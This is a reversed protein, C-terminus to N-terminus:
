TPRIYFFKRSDIDLLGFIIKYTLVLDQVLRRKELSTLALANLRSPYDLHSYGRLRKTFRRQVSEVKDIQYSYQPSWVPSAYELLPRVYVNFARTMIEPDRSVFCKRILYARSNAKAVIGDIHANFKLASDMVVGLDKVENVYNVCVGYLQCTPVCVSRNGYVIVSCKKISIPMQWKASWHGISDLAEQLNIIDANAKLMTYLKVDDAFLVCTVDEKIVKVLSNIYLLFLIPGICSGQIVGSNINVPVSLASGVRTRQQRDSLFSKIWELLNGAIGLSALRVLLKNHCVSDFAKQFDIYAVAVSHRNMIACTWDNLCYLLNTVTSRKSLFGHQQNTILKYKKCYDLMNSVIVREMLKCFVSTLAIPRYNAPESAVGSKYVPTIIADKWVAPLRGVSMFSRFMASLPYVLCHGLEKVLLPPYGDPGATTKAKIKRIAKLIAEASFDVDDLVVEEPVERDVAVHNGDDVTCVSAFFNNLLNAKQEDDTVLNGDTDYLAGIGTKCTLKNNVFRYFKGLNEASVVDCEKRVEYEHILRRCESHAEDYKRRIELNTPNRRHRRWLCKKRTIARKISRPYRRTKSHNESTNNQAVTHSPVYWDVASQLVTCFASWLTDVTLNYMLLSDWDVSLLYDRMATYDAHKWLYVRHVAHENTSPKPGTPRDYSTIVKFQISSHDSGGIPSLVNVDSVLLAENCLVLDLINSQRTPETVLQSFGNEVVFKLLCDQINDAPARPIDWSIGPCNFDGVIFVPWKVACLSTLTEILTVVHMKGIADHSPPRYVVIFRYKDRHVLVDVASVEVDDNITIETISLSKRAVICVGGGSSRLRDHRVINYRHSPDIISDPVATKLWTETIFIIDFESSDLIHHFDCLNACISRANFVLCNLATSSMVFTNSM